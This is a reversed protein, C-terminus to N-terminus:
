DDAAIPYPNRCVPTAGARASITIRFTDRLVLLLIVALILIRLCGQIRRAAVADGPPGAAARLRQAVRLRHVVSRGTADPRCM